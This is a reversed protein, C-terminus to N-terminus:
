PRKVLAIAQQESFGAEILARYKLRDQVALYREMKELNPIDRAFQEILYDLDANASFAALEAKLIQEPTLKPM